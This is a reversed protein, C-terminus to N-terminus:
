VVSIEMGHTFSCGLGFVPELSDVIELLGYIDIMGFFAEGMPELGSHFTILPGIFLIHM